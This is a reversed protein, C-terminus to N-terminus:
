LQVPKTIMTQGASHLALINAVTMLLNVSKNVDYIQTITKVFTRSLIIAHQFCLHRKLQVTKTIMTQGASHLALINAVIM